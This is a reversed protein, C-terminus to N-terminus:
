SAPGNSTIKHLEELLCTLGNWRPQGSKRLKRAARGAAAAASCTAPFLFRKLSIKTLVAIM